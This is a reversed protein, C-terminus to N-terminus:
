PERPEKSIHKLNSLYNYANFDNKSETFLSKFKWGISINELYFDSHKVFNM